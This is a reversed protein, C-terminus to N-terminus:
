WGRSPPKASNMADTRSPSMTMGRSSASSGRRSCSAWKMAQMLVPFVGIVEAASPTAITRTSSHASCSRRVAAGARLACGQDIRVDLESLASDNLVAGGDALRRSSGLGTLVLRLDSRAADHSRSRHDVGSCDDAISEAAAVARQDSFVVDDAIVAADAGVSHELGSVADPVARTNMAPAKQFVGRETGPDEEARMDDEGVIGVGHARPIEVAHKAGRDGVVDADSRVGGDQGTQLDAGARQDAGAADHCLVDLRARDHGAAGRHPDLVDGLQDAELAKVFPWVDPSCRFRMPGFSGSTSRFACCAEMAASTSAATSLTIAFASKM